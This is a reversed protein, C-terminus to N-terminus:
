LSQLSGKLFTRKPDFRLNKFNANHGNIFLGSFNGYRQRLIMVAEVKGSSGDDELGSQDPFSHLTSVWRLPDDELSLVM